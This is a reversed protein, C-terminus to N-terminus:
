YLSPPWGKGREHCSCLHVQYWPTGSCLLGRGQQHSQFSQNKKNQCHTIELKSILRWQHADVLARFTLLHVMANDMEEQLPLVNDPLTISNTQSEVPNSTSNRDLTGPTPSPSCSFHATINIMGVQSSEQPSPPPQKLYVPIIKWLDPPAKEKSVAPTNPVMPPPRRPSVPACSQEPMSSLASSLLREVEEEISPRTVTDSPCETVSHLSSIPMSFWQSAAMAMDRCTTRQLNVQLM